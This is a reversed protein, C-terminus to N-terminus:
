IRLYLARFLSIYDVSVIEYTIDIIIICSYYVSKRTLCKKSQVHRQCKKNVPARTTINFKCLRRHRICFAFLFFYKSRSAIVIASVVDAGGYEVRDRVLLRNYLRYSSNPVQLTCVNKFSSVFQIAYVKEPIDYPM